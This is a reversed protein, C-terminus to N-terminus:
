SVYDIPGPKGFVYTRETLRHDAVADAIDKLSVIGVLVDDNMVLVRHIAARRMFDAATDVRTHAPLSCINHTMVDAVTHQALRDYGRAVELQDFREAVDSDANVEPEDLWAAAPDNADAAEAGDELEDWPRERETADPTAAAFALLDTVSVVGVVKNQAVVPAGSVHENVLLEMAERVSLEPAVSVLETTMIEELRLM